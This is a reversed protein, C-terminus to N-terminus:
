FPGWQDGPRTFNWASGALLLGGAWRSALGARGPARMGYHLLGASAGTAAAMSVGFNGVDAPLSQEGFFTPGLLYAGAVGTAVRRYLRNTAVQAGYRELAAGEMKVGSAVSSLDHGAWWDRVAMGFGRGEAGYHERIGRFAAGLEGRSRAVATEAFLKGAQEGAFIELPSLANTGRYFMTRVASGIAKLM